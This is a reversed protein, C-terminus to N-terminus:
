FDKYEYGFYEPNNVIIYHAFARHMDNSWHFDDAVGMEGNTKNYLMHLSEWFGIEKEIKSRTIIEEIDFENEWSFIMLRFPLYSKLSKIIEEFNNKSAISANVIQALNYNLPFNTNAFDKESIKSLPEELKKSEDILQYSHAGIFYDLHKRKENEVKLFKSFEVDTRPTELPLRFRNLTPLFLIVLDDKKIEKLNRLFIDLITQIDRSGHSSIYFDNGKFTNILLKPWSNDHIGTFSDGIIWLKKDMFKYHLVKVVDVLVPHM